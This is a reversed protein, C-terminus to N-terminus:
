QTQLTHTGWEQEDRVRSSVRVWLLPHVTQLPYPVFPIRTSVSYVASDPRKQKTRKVVVQVKKWSRSPMLTLLFRGPTFSFSSLFFILYLWHSWDFSIILLENQERRIGATGKTIKTEGKGIKRIGYSNESNDSIRVHIQKSAPSLYPHTNRTTGTQKEQKEDDNNNNNVESCFFGDFAILHLAIVHLLHLYRPFCFIM